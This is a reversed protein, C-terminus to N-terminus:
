GPPQSSLCDMERVVNPRYSAPCFIVGLISKPPNHQKKEKWTTIDTHQTKHDTHIEEMTMQALSQSGRVFHTLSFLRVMNYKYVYTYKRTLSVCISNFILLGCGQSLTLPVCLCLHPKFAFVSNGGFFLLYYSSWIGVRTLPKLSSVSFLM